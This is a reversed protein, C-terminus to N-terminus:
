QSRESGFEKLKNKKSQQKNINLYDHKKIVKNMSCNNQM